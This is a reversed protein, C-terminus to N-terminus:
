TVPVNNQKYTKIKELVERVALVYDGGYRPAKTFATAALVGAGGMRLFEIVDESEEIGAGAYVPISPNIKKVTDLTKQLEDKKEKIISIRQGIFADWEVAIACSAPLFPVIRSATEASDVCVIVRLEKDCAKKITALLDNLKEPSSDNSYRREECHNLLTGNAVGVLSDVCVAGTRSDGTAVNDIKQSLLIIQHPIHDLACRAKDLDAVPVCLAVSIEYQVTLSAVAACYDAVQTGTIHQKLNIVISPWHM